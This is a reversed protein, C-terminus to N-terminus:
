FNDSWACHNLAKFDTLFNSSLHRCGPRVDERPVASEGTDNKSKAHHFLLSQTLTIECFRPSIRGKLM